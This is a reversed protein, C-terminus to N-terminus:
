YSEHDVRLWDSQTDQQSVVEDMEANDNRLIPEEQQTERTTERTHSGHSRYRRMQLKKRLKYQRYRDPDAKMKQYWQQCSESNSKM